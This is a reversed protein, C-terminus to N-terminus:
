WASPWQWALAILVFGAPVSWSWDRRPNQRCRMQMLTAIWVVLATNWAALASLWQEEQWMQSAAIFPLASFAGTLFLVGAIGTLFYGRLPGWRGPMRSLMYRAEMWNHPGAFAFVAVI